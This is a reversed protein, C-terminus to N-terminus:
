SQVSTCRAKCSSTATNPECLHIGNRRKIEKRLTENLWRTECGVLWNSLQEAVFFYVQDRKHVKLDQLSVRLKKSKTATDVPKKILTDWIAFMDPSGGLQNECERIIHGITDIGICHKGDHLHLLFARCDVQMQPKDGRAAQGWVTADVVWDIM